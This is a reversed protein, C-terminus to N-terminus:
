FITFSNVPLIRRWFSLIITKWCCIKLPKQQQNRSDPLPGTSTDWTWTSCINCHHWRPCLRSISPHIAPQSKHIPRKDTLSINMGNEPQDHISVRPFSLPYGYDIYHSKKFMFCSNQKQGKVSEVMFWHKHLIWNMWLPWQSILAYYVMYWICIYGHQLM